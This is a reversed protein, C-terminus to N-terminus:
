KITTSATLAQKQDHLLDGADDSPTLGIDFNIASGAQYEFNDSFSFTEGPAWVYPAMAGTTGMALFNVNMQAAVDRDVIGDMGAMYKWDAYRPIVDVLLDTLKISESSTNTMVYNLYVIQDGIEILPTNTDADVFSGTTSAPATGVQYIDVRFNSGDVSTLLEGPSTTPMAWAPTVSDGAPAAAAATKEPAATETATPKATPKATASKTTKAAASSTADPADGSACGALSTAVLVALFLPAVSRSIRM